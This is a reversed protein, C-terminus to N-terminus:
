QSEAPASEEYIDANELLEDYFAEGGMAVAWPLLAGRSDWYDLEATQYDNNIQRVLRDLLEVELSKMQKWVARMESHDSQNDGALTRRRADLEEIAKLTDPCNDRRWRQRGQDSQFSSLRKKSDAVVDAWSEAFNRASIEDRSFSKALYPPLRFTTDLSKMRDLFGFRVRVIGSLTKPLMGAASLKEGLRVSTPMYLSGRYPLVLPQGTDGYRVQITLVLAKGGLCIVGSNTLADIPMARDPGLKLTKDAIRLENGDLYAGTRVLQGQHMLTAFFPLEGTSTRLPRLASSTETISENYLGSAQEYDRLFLELVAIQDSGPKCALLSSTMDLSTASGLYQGLWARYLEVLKADAFQELLSEMRLNEDACWKDIRKLADASCFTRQMNDHTLQAINRLHDATEAVTLDGILRHHRRDFIYSSGILQWNDGPSFEDYLDDVTRGLKRALVSTKMGSFLEWNRIDVPQAGLFDSYFLAAGWDAGGGRYYRERAIHPTDDSGISTYATDIDEVFHTVAMSRRQLAQLKPLVDWYSHCNQDISFM